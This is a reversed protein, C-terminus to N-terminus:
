LLLEFRQFILGCVYNLKKLLAKSVSLGSQLECSVLWFPLHRTYQKHCYDFHCTLLKNFKMQCIGVNWCHAYLHMLLHAQVVDIKICIISLFYTDGHLYFCSIFMFVLGRWSFSVSHERFFGIWLCTFGGQHGAEFWEDASWSCNAECKKGCQRANVTVFLCVVLETRWFSIKVM